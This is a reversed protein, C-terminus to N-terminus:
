HTKPNPRTASNHPPPARGSGTPLRCKAGDPEVNLNCRLQPARQQPARWSARGSAFRGARGKWCHPPRRSPPGSPGRARWLSRPGSRGSHTNRLAESEPASVSTSSRAEHSALEPATLCKEPGTSGVGMTRPLAQLMRGVSVRGEPFAGSELAETGEGVQANFGFADGKPDRGGCLLKGEGSFVVVRIDPRSHLLLVADCLGAVIGEGLRNNDEPRNLTVYAIAKALEM